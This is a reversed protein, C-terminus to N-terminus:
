GVREQILLSADASLDYTLPAWVEDQATLRGGDQCGSRTSGFTWLLDFSRRAHDSISPSADKAATGKLRPRVGVGESAM